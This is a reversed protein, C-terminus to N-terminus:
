LIQHLCKPAKNSSSLDSQYNATKKYVVGKPLQQIANNTYEKAFKKAAALTEISIAM